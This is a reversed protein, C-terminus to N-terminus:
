TDTLKNPDGRICESNSPSARDGMRADNEHDGSIRDASRRFKTRRFGDSTDNGIIVGEDPDEDGVADMKEEDGLIRKLPITATWM